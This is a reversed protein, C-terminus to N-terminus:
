ALLDIATMYPCVFIGRGRSVLHGYSGGEKRGGGMCEVGGREGELEWVAAEHGGSM